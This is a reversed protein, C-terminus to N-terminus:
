NIYITIQIPTRPFQNALLKSSIFTLRIANLDKFSIIILDKESDFRGNLGRICRLSILVRFVEIGGVACM